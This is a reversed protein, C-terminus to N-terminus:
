SALNLTISNQQLCVFICTKEEVQQKATCSQIIKLKETAPQYLGTASLIPCCEFTAFFVEKQKIKGLEIKGLLANNAM